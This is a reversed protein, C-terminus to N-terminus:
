ETSNDVPGIAIAEVTEAAEATPVRAMQAAFAAHTVVIRDGPDLQGRTFWFDANGRSTLSVEVPGDGRFIPHITPDDSMPDARLADSEIDVMVTIPEDSLSELRVHVGLELTGPIHPEVTVKVPMLPRPSEPSGGCGGITAVAAVMAAM